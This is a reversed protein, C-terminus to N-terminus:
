HLHELLRRGTPTNGLLRRVDLEIQRVREKTVGMQKSVVELTPPKGIVAMREYFVIRQRENLRAENLMQAIEGRISRRELVQAYSGNSNPDPIVDGLERDGEYRGGLRHNLSIPEQQALIKRAAVSADYLNEVKMGHPLEGIGKIIKKLEDDALPEVRRKKELGDLLYRDLIGVAYAALVWHGVNQRILRRPAVKVGEKLIANSTPVPKEKM